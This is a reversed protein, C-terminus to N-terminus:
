RKTGHIEQANGPRAEMASVASGQHDPHHHYYVRQITELSTSFYSSVHSLDAGRQMAWTIATHKLTHPTVDQLGADDRVRKWATKIDGVRKGQYDVVWHPSNKKWRRAHALLQRPLKAAERRKKTRREGTGSRYLIGREVDIHGANPSPRWGLNLIASKRTGTYVAILIFRALHRSKDNARAARLLAAIEDRTCWRDLPESKEPLIVPPAFSLHREEVCHNLAARLTGLERRITDPAKQSKKVYQRCLEGTIDGVCKDAWFELLADIAYGIRAPDATGVAHEEAYLALAAAIPFAAADGEKPPEWKEIIYEALRGEAEQRCEPGYGTSVERGRDLIVYVATRNKRKRLYLRPPEPNRPM